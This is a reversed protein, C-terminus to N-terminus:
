VGTSEQSVSGGSSKDISKNTPSGKYRVSAGSSVDARLDHLVSVEIASGSSGDTHAKEAVLGFGRFTAGSSSDIYAVDTDGTIDAVSGSSLDVEVERVDVEVDIHAGSSIDIELEDGRIVHDAYLNSGSTAKLSELNETYTIVVDIDKKKWASFWSRKHKVSVVLVDNKIYTKVRELEIGDVQISIENTTGEILKADIGSSVSIGSFADLDRTERDAAQAVFLTLILLGTQLFTLSKQM